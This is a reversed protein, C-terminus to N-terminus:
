EEVDIVRFMKTVGEKLYANVLDPWRYRRNVHQISTVHWHEAVLLAVYTYVDHSLTRDFIIVEGDTFSGEMKLLEDLSRCKKELDQLHKDVRIMTVDIQPTINAM